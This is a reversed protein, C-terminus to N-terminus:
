LLKLKQMALKAANQEAQKKSHGKGKGMEEGVIKVVVNFTKMHEPGSESAVEYRPVGKNRSQTYELLRGKYNVYEDGAILSEHGELLHMRVANRVPEIGDDLYIAGLVAEYADALITKRNRGGSNQEENSMIIYRGLDIEQAIRYLIAESVLLGKIKTLKGERYDPYNSYLFESIVMGLISDGLFELRENSVFGEIGINNQISRHCLAVVLLRRDKFAYDFEKELESLNEPPVLAPDLDNAREPVHKQSSLLATLKTFLTM